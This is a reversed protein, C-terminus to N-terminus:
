NGALLQSLEAITTYNHIRITKLTYNKGNLEAIGQKTSRAFWYTSRKIVELVKWNYKGEPYCFSIVPRGLLVELMEKSQFIQREIQERRLRTLDLHEITHSGIEMGHKIMAQLQAASLHKTDGITRLVVYFVGKQGNKLLEQYAAWNDAYGDDFTIIVPKEPLTKDNAFHEFLDWFTITRYGQEKLFYLHNRFEYNNCSLDQMTKDDAAEGDRIHHYMIIPVRVQDALTNSTLVIIFFM